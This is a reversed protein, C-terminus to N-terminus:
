HTNGTKRGHSTLTKNGSSHLTRKQSYLQKSVWGVLSLWSIQRWTKRNLCCFMNTRTQWHVPLFKRPYIALHSIAPDCAHSHEVSYDCIIKLLLQVSQVRVPLTYKNTKGVRCQQKQSPSNTRWDPISGTGEVTFAVLGLWQVVLFNGCLQTKVSLDKRANRRACLRIHTANPELNRDRSTYTRRLEANM